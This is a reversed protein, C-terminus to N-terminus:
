KMLRLEANLLEQDAFLSPMRQRLALVVRLGPSTGFAITMGASITDMCYRNCIENGKAVARLDLINLNSGLAGITEYEPGGYRSDVGYVPDDLAIARKCMIPCAHCGKRKKLLVDEGDDTEAHFSDKDLTAKFAKAIDSAINNEGRGDKVAVTVDVPTGDKPTVRFVISGDSRATESVEVRWKNSLKLDEAVTQTGGVLMAVAAVATVKMRLSLRDM